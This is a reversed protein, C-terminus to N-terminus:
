RTEKYGGSSGFGGRSDDRIQTVEEWQVQDVPLFLGQAIREGKRVEVDRSSFNYLNLKIEDEPGCYDRDVIGIGNSVMLGKKIPLSSRAAILLFHKEPAQIVLGTKILVVEGPKIVRDESAAIDFGASEGTAYHPLGVTQDIRSIKAKM